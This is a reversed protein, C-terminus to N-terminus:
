IVGLVDCMESITLVDEQIKLKRALLTIQPPMLSARRLSESKKFIERVLGGDIIEGHSMVVARHAYEAVLSMDHTVLVITKGAKNLDEILTMIRQASRYDLGTTPEDLVLIQPNMSLISALALKSKDGRSLLYTYHKEKGELGTMKIAYQVDRDIEKDSFGLNKPGYAVEELVTDCFIQHDPNQFVFGVKAALNAVTTKTVDLGDILVNGYSPKLLGNFHKVLTTKGSGNEGIIAVFEGKRITLNIEKLATVGTPYTHWLDQCVIIEEYYNPFKDRFEKATPTIKGSLSKVAEELTIPILRHPYKGSNKLLYALLSVQPPKVGVKELIDLNKIVEHPEGERVIEGNDLIIMNDAFECIKEVKKEIMMITIGYEDNLRNVCSIVSETGRPDLDSTPEDMVLIEPRMALVAAIVVRQKQGGSLAISSRGRLDEIGVMTLASDVREKIEERKLGLNEPGFAVEEEVTFAILQSEPNQLVIGVYGTVNTTKTDLGRVLVRGELEAQIIRPILGCVCLGLISKGSGVSGTVLMFEGKNISFSVKNLSPHLTDPFKVTVDKFEILAM